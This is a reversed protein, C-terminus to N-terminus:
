HGTESVKNQPSNEILKLVDLAFLGTDYPDKDNSKCEAIKKLGEIIETKGCDGSVYVGYMNDVAKRLDPCGVNDRDPRTCVAIYQELGERGVTLYALADLLEELVAGCQLDGLIRLCVSIVNGTDTAYYVSETRLCDILISLRWTDREARAVILERELWDMEIISTRIGVIFENIGIERKNIRDYLSIFEPSM